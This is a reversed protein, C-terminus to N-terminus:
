RVYIPNAYIWVFEQDALHAYTSLHKALHHPRMRVEARYVGAETVPHTVSTTGETVLSWTTDTARWLVTRIEPAPSAGGEVSPATVFLTPADSLQIESGMEASAGSAEAHFDFGVPYGFAEFAGYLRGARLADKLARDDFKGEATPQVLLHNSFWLMMRRYSDVREGDPLLTAFTNRHCDTGMTTTRKVGRALVQSWKDLYRADESVLPVFVLDSHPLKEPSELDFLLALVAGAGKETNAHLNYMEFGDIPLEALQDVSWEETHQLLSVAGAAKLKEIDAPASSGYIASREEPTASVHAELGVPMTETETGALVLAPDQEPCALWSAVPNGEREILADGRASDYLLVDPYESRTFSEGHDTLMVFDHQVQCLGRRFDDLCPLNIQDNEDRPEGDCADHSYVSHAHILGRRDLLGRAGLERATPYVTGPQWGQAPEPEDADESGCAL